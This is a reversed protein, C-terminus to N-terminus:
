CILLSAAIVVKFDELKFFDKHPCNKLDSQGRSKFCRLPVDRSKDDNGVFFRISWCEM